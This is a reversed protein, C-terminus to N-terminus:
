IDRNPPRKTDRLKELPFCVHQFIACLSGEGCQAVLFLIVLYQNLDHSTFPLWFHLRTLKEAFIKVLAFIRPFDTHHALFINYCIFSALILLKPFSHCRWLFLLCSLVEDSVLSLLYLLLLLLFYKDTESCVTKERQPDKKLCGLPPALRGPAKKLPLIDTTQM